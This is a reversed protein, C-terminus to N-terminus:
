LKLIIIRMTWPHDIDDEDAKDFIIEIGMKNLIGAAEANKLLTYSQSMLSACAYQYSDKKLDKLMEILILSGFPLLGCNGTTLFTEIYFIKDYLFAAELKKMLKPDNKKLDKNYEKLDKIEMHERASSGFLYSCPKNTGKEFVVYGKSTKGFTLHEYFEDFDTYYPFEEYKEYFHKRDTDSLNRALEAIDVNDYKLDSIRRISPHSETYYKEFMKAMRASAEPSQIGGKMAKKFFYKLNM